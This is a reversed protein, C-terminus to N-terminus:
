ESIAIYGTREINHEGVTDNLDAFVLRAVPVPKKMIAHEPARVDGCIRIISLPWGSRAAIPWLFKNLIAAAIVFHCAM